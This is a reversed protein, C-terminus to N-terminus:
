AVTCTGHWHRHQLGCTPGTLAAAWNVVWFKVLIPMVLMTMNTDKDVVGHIAFGLKRDPIKNKQLHCDIPAWDITPRLIKLM